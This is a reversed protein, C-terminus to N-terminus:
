NLNGVPVGLVQDKLSGLIKKKKLDTRYTNEM